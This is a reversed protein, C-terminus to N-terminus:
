DEGDPSRGDRPGFARVADLDSPPSLVYDDVWSRVDPFSSGSILEDAVRNPDTATTRLHVGHADLLVWPTGPVGYPM